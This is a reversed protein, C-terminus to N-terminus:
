DDDHSAGYAVSAAEKVVDPNERAYDVAAKGVKKAADPHEKAAKVVGFTAKELAQKRMAKIGGAQQFNVRTHIWLYIMFGASAGWLICNVLCMFGVAQNGDESFAAVTWIIGMFGGRQPGVLAVITIIIEITFGIFFLFYSLSSGSKCAKYLRRFVIFFMAGLFPLYICALILDGVAAGVPNTKVAVLCAITCVINYILLILTILFHYYAMRTRTRLIEPIEADFDLYAIKKPLCPPWNPAPKDSAPANAMAKNAAEMKQDAQTQDQAVKREREAVARERAELDALRREYDAIDISTSASTTTTTGMDAPKPPRAPPTYTDDKPPRPPPAAAGGFAGSDDNMDDFPNDDTIM